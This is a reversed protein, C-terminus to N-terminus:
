YPQLSAGAPAAARAFDEPNLQLNGPIQQTYQQAKTKADAQKPKHPTLAFGVGIIVICAFGTVALQLLKKNIIPKKFRGPAARKINPTQPTPAPQNPQNNTDPNDAM